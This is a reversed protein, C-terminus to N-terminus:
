HLDYNSHSFNIKWRNKETKQIQIDWDIQKPCMKNELILFISQPVNWNKKQQELLFGLRNYVSRINMRNAYEILLEFKPPKNMRNCLNLLNQFNKCYAPRRLCDLLTKEFDTVNVSFEYNNTIIQYSKVGYFEASQCWIYMRKEYSFANFKTRNILYVPQNEPINGQAHFQLASQYGIHGKTILKSAIELPSNLAPHYRSEDLRALRYLGQRIPSIYGKMILDSLRKRLTNGTTGLKCSAETITFVQGQNFHTYIRPLKMVTSVDM